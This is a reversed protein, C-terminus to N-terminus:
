RGRESNFHAKAARRKLMAFFRKLMSRRDYGAERLIDATTFRVLVDDEVLLIVPKHSEGPGQVVVLEDVKAGGHV